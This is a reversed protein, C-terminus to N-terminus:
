AVQAKSRGSSGMSMKVPRVIRSTFKLYLDNVKVDNEVHSTFFSLCYLLSFGIVAAVHKAYYGILQKQYSNM